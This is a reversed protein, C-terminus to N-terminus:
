PSNRRATRPGSRPLPSLHTGPMLRGGHRLDILSAGTGAEALVQPQRFSPRARHIPQTLLYRNTSTIQRPMKTASIKALGTEARGVGPWSASVSRNRRAAPPQALLVAAPRVRRPRLTFTRPFTPVSRKPFKTRSSRRRNPTSQELTENLLVCGVEPVTIM